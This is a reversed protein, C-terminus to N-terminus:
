TGQTYDIFIPAATTFTPLRHVRITSESLPRILLGCLSVYQGATVGNSSVSGEDIYRFLSCMELSNDRLICIYVYKYM